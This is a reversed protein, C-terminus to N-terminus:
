FQKRLFGSGGDSWRETIYVWGDWDGLSMFLTETIYFKSKFQIEEM